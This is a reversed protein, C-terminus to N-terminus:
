QSPRWARCPHEASPWLAPPRRSAPANIGCRGLGFGNGIRDREFHLCGGCTVPAAPATPAPQAPGPAPDAKAIIGLLNTLGAPDRRCNLLFEARIEADTEDISDLWRVLAAETEPPLHAPNPDPEPAPAVQAGPYLKIVEPLAAPPCFSVSRTEAGTSVVWLRHPMDEHDADPRPPPGDTLFRLLDPKAARIRQRLEDTIRERPSVLLRDGDASVSFGFSVLEQYFTEAAGM